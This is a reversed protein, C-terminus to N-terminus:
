YMFDELWRGVFSDRVFQHPKDHLALTEALSGGPHAQSLERVLNSYLTGEPYYPHVFIEDRDVGHKTKLQADFWKALSICEEATWSASMDAAIEQDKEEREELWKWIAPDLTDMDRSAFQLSWLLNQVMNYPFPEIDIATKVLEITVPQDLICVFVYVAWYRRSRVAEHIVDVPIPLGRPQHDEMARQGFLGRAQYELTWSPNIGAGSQVLCRLLSEQEDTWQWSLVKEPLAVGREVIFWPIRYGRKFYPTLSSDEDLTFREMMGGAIEDASAEIWWKEKLMMRPNRDVLAAHLALIDQQFIPHGKRILDLFFPWTFFRANMLRAQLDPNRYSKFADFRLQMFVEDKIRSKLESYDDATDAELELRDYVDDFHPAGHSFARWSFELYLVKSSLIRALHPSCEPLALNGSELFIFQILETPLKEFVSLKIRRRSTQSPQNDAQRDNGGRAPSGSNEPSSGSAERTRSRKQFDKLVAANGRKGRVRIPTLDM